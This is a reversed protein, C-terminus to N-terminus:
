HPIENVPLREQQVHTLKERYLAEKDDHKTPLVPVLPTQRAGYRRQFVKEPATAHEQEDPQNTKASPHKYSLEPRVM